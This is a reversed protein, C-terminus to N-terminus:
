ALVLSNKRVTGDLGIMNTTFGTDGGTISFALMRGGVFDSSVVTANHIGIGVYGNTNYATMRVVNKAALDVGTNGVASNGNSSPLVDMHGSFSNAVSNLAITAGLGGNNRFVVLNFQNYNDGALLQVPNNTGSNTIQLGTFINRRAFGVSTFIYGGGSVVLNSFMNYGSAPIMIPAMVVANVVTSHFVNNVVVRGGLVNKPIRLDRVTVRTSLLLQMADLRTDTIDKAVIRELVIEETAQVWVGAMASGAGFGGRIEVDSVLVRSAGTFSMLAPNTCTTTQALLVGNKVAIDTVASSQGYCTLTCGTCNGPIPDRFAIVGTSNTFTMVKSWFIGGISAFLGSSITGQETTLGAVSCYQNAALGTSSFSLSAITLTTSGEATNVTTILTTVATSVQPGVVGNAYFTGQIMANPLPFSNSGVCATTPYALINGGLDLTVGTPIYMPTGATCTITQQGTTCVGTGANCSQGVRVVGGRSTTSCSSYDLSNCGVASLAQSIGQCTYAYDIGDVVAYNPLVRGSFGTTGQAGTSGNVGPIGTAGIVGQNGQAGATGNCMVYSTVNSTLMLCSSPLSSPFSYVPLYTTGM